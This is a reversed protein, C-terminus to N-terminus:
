LANKAGWIKAEDIFWKIFEINDENAQPSNSRRGFHCDTLTVVKEFLV